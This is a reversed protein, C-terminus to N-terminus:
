RRAANPMDLARFQEVDLTFGRGALRAAIADLNARFFSLDHMSAANANASRCGPSVSPPQRHLRRASPDAPQQPIAGARARDLRVHPQRRLHAHVSRHSNGAFLLHVGFLLGRQREPEEDRQHDRRDEEFHPVSGSARHAQGAEESLERLHTARPDETHYVRHGFGPIKMKNRSCTQVHALPRRRAGADLLMKIVDENAGGHLPGKLAGIAPPSRPTSTPCADRGDRARRLHLREVRSRRAADARHRLRAGDRRRAEQGDAHIPFEGRLGAESRRGGGAQRQAVPRLYHRHDGTQAMLRVAKRTAPRSPITAARRSRLAGAHLGRHAARGHAPM